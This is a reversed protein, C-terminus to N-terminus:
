RNGYDETQEAYKFSVKGGAKGKELATNTFSSISELM